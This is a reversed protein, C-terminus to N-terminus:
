SPNEMLIKAMLYSAKRIGQDTVFVMGNWKYSNIKSM